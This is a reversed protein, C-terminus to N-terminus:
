RLGIEKSKDKLKDCLRNFFTKVYLSSETNLAEKFVLVDIENYPNYGSFILDIFLTEKDNLIFLHRHAYFLEKLDEPSEDALTSVLGLEEIEDYIDTSFYPSYWVTVKNNFEDYGQKQYVGAQKRIYDKLVSKLELEIIEESYYPNYIISEYKEREDVLFDLGIVQGTDFPVKYKRDLFYSINDIIALVREFTIKM